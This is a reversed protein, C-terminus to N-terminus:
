HWRIELRFLAEAAAKDNFFHKLSISNNVMAGSSSLRVGLATKYNQASINNLLGFGALLLFSLFIKKM